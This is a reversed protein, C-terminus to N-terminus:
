PARGYETVWRRAFEYLQKDVDVLAEVVALCEAIPPANAGKAQAFTFDRRAIALAHKLYLGCEHVSRAWANRCTLCLCTEFNGLLQVGEADNGGCCHCKPSRLAELEASVAALRAEIEELRLVAEDHPTM